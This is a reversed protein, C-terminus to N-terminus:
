SAIELSTIPYPIADKVKHAALTRKYIQYASLFYDFDNDMDLETQAFPHLETGEATVHIVYTGAIWPLEYRTEPDDDEVYYDASAYAALQAATERYVGKSTKVDFM